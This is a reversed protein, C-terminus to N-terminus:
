LLSEEQAAFKAARLKARRKAQNVRGRERMCRRCRRSKDNFVDYPHGKPCHTKQGNFAGYGPRTELWALIERARAARREGFWPLMLALFEEVRKREGVHWMYADKHHESAKWKVHLGTKSPFLRDVREMVDRDTMHITVSAGSHNKVICGEGEFLGALWAIDIDRM